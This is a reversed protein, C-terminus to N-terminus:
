RCRCPSADPDAGRARQAPVRVRRRDRPRVLDGARARGRAAVRPDDPTRDQVVKLDIAVPISAQLQPLVARVRDVTEIINAGPQRNIILLVAPKGNASGANRLDQM